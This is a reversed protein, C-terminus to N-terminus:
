DEGNQDDILRGGRDSKGLARRKAAENFLGVEEPVKKTRRSGCVRKVASQWEEFPAFDALNEWVIHVHEKVYYSDIGWSSGRSIFTRLLTLIAAKPAERLWERAQQQAHEIDLRRWGWLLFSLHSSCIMKGSSAATELRKLAESKIRSLDDDSLQPWWYVNEHRRECGDATWIFALVSRSQLMTDMVLQRKLEPSDLRKLAEVLLWYPISSADSSDIGVAGSRPPFEDSTDWVALRLAQSADSKAFCTEMSLRRLFQLATKPRKLQKRILNACKDRDGKVALLDSIDAESVTHEQLEGAYFRHFIRESCVRAEAEWKAFFSSDYGMNSYAGHAAPFVGAIIAKVADQRQESALSKIKDLEEISRGRQSYEVTKLFLGHDNLLAQHVAPEFLRLCELAFVDLINVEPIGRTVLGAMRFDVVNLYRQADRLTRFMRSLGPQWLNAWRERDFRMWSIGLRNVLDTLGSTVASHIKSINPRPLDLFVQVFKELFASGDEHTHRNIAREVVDRQFLLLYTLNPLDANARILRLVLLIEDDGLRDMDDVVVVIQSDLTLMMQRLKLKQYSLSDTAEQHDLSDAAFISAESAKKAAGGILEGVAGAAPVIMGAVKGAHEAFTGFAQITNGFRRWNKARETPSGRGPAKGIANGIEEFFLKEIGPLGNVQWPSFEVWNPPAKGAEQAQALSAAQIMNKTSTKGEGWKGCLAVALSEKNRGSAFLSAAARKAFGSRDLADEELTTIPTDHHTPM